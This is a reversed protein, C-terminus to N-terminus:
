HMEKLVAKIAEVEEAVEETEPASRLMAELEDKPAYIGMFDLQDKWAIVAEQSTM